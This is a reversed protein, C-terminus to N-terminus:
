VEIGHHRLQNPNLLSHDLKPMWLAENLILIYNDGTASTYGTAATVIPVDKISEYESSYPSVECVRDTFSIVITNRGAVITDAHTDLETLGVYAESPEAPLAVDIQKIMRNSSKIQSVKM